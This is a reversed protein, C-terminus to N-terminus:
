AAVGALRFQHTRLAPATPASKPQDRARGLKFVAMANVLEHAKAYLNAASSAMEEVMAANQQTSLDMHGVAEGVQAVGQSQERSAISIEGIIEAVHRISSVIDAMAKGADDVLVAGQEVRAVSDSILAKIERAADSSRGALSRVESAVVAFGRGQEGARAAEVAANLALINTQFAIGDIVGIIDAIKRSSDNIGRMTEVVKGVVEGGHEAVASASQALENAQRANDANQKVTSSFQEMSAATQELSSAQSETRSSLETNGSSIQESASSVEEAGQRVTSVIQTLSVQMRRVAALVSGEDDARVQVFNTLDGDAVQNVVRRLEIPEAGLDHALSRTILVGAVVALVVALFGVFILSNRQVVYEDMAAKIQSHERSATFDAYNDTAKILAALLPRCDSNMKEIAADHKGSLALDVINLAVPAYIQEIRDIEDIMKKVEAPVKGSEALKKLKNLSQTADAHAKMVTQKELALDEAKTVLVLNRAAIARLDIAARVRAATSARANIGSVYSEFRGNADALMTVSLGAVLLVMLALVGFALALKTRVTLNKMSQDRLEEGILPHRDSKSSIASM